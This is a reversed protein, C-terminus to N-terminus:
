FEWRAAVTKDTFQPFRKRFKRAWGKRGGFTIAICDHREAYDKLDALLEELWDSSDVGVLLTIELIRKEAQIIRTLCMAQLKDTDHDFIFWPMLLGRIVQKLIFRPQSEPVDRLARQLQKEFHDFAWRVQAEYNTTRIYCGM